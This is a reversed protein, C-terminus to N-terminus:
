GNNGRAIGSATGPVVGSATDRHLPGPAVSPTASPTTGMTVAPTVAPTVPPSVQLAPGGHADDARAVAAEVGRPMAVPQEPAAGAGGKGHVGPAGPLTDAAERERAARALAEEIRSM